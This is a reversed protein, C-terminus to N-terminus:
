DKEEQFFFKGMVLEQEGCMDLLRERSESEGPVGM